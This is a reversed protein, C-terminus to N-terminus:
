GSVKGHLYQDPHDGASRKVPERYSGVSTDFDDEDAISDDTEIEFTPPEYEVDRAETLAEGFDTDLSQKYATEGVRMRPFLRAFEDMTLVRALHFLAEQDWTVKKGIHAVLRHRNLQCVVKGAPELKKAAEHEVLQGYRNGLEDQILDHELELPALDRKLRDKLGEIHNKVRRLRGALDDIGSERIQDALM